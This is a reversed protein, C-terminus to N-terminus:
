DIWNENQTLNGNKEREAAPIPWTWNQDGVWKYTYTTTGWIETLGNGSRFKKEQWTKWRLEDFYLHEEFPLEWYRENRIRERMDDKGSVTTYANTNLPQAGARKRVENVYAVAESTRNQENLAEALNLLVDAYRILPLDIPSYNQYVHERGEFVFKRILYYFKANTDTRLDYPAANDSGRYPWRLTYTVASGTIGGLFTSYPTIVNMGLRPDRNAYAKRIRAENGSPLYKSMDAGYATMTAIEKDTMNNRLFFVSRQKATMTSYGPLFDDWNFPKGDACEYSDVFAPNALYNNWGAGAAGRSGFAWSFPSGYGSQEIFQVSFIMEDCRENEEKFLMKYSDATFLSYGMKTIELFDDEAEEYKGLWLYTKGRLAYAAAKTVRGYDSSSSAYKDPLNPEDICDKLDALVIEWVAEESSRGRNAQSAEVPELYVPVGHWLINMRYYYWARLFKCEAIYRAKKSDSMDPVKHINAIVDNARHIPEYYRKWYVFYDNSRPTANGRLMPLNGIWNADYDMVSSRVDWAPYHRGSASNGNSAYDERLCNYVGVVAQEALNAKKWINESSVADTPITDLLGSQCGQLICVSATLLIAYLRKIKM